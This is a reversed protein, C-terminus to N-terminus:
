FRFALFYMLAMNVGLLIVATPLQARIVGNLASNRDPLELLNAPVVNFNAAMPTMLTGCFGALMGIACVIAPNGGFQGVVFPLGIAATMVPFAAFANGMIVTFLAMGLCYAAVALLPSSMPVAQTVLEGVVGGVDAALFVAGLSALMQPLLAAWGISDMLRRGEQVPAMAPPRLWAMAAVLALVCGLGLAILTTQTSSILWAGVSTHKAALTGGVAILPVILAPIFLANRRLTASERREELTTTSPQGVGLTKLGGLAVLALVLLGNGLGGLWSGFLMSAAILGWFLASRIRTPHGTDRLTLIAFALFMLGVLIYAHELTIM